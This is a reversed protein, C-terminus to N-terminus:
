RLFVAALERHSGGAESVTIQAQIEHLSLTPGEMRLGIVRENEHPILHIEIDSASDARRGFVAFQPPPNKSSLWIWQGAGYDDSWIVIVEITASTEAPSTLMAIANTHGGRLAERLMSITKESLLSESQLARELAQREISDLNIQSKLLSLQSQQNM